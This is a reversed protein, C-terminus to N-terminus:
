GLKIKATILKLIEKAAKLIQEVKEKTFKIPPGFPYREEVYFPNLVLCNPLLLNFSKDHKLCLKLLLTLDHTKPYPSGKTLLYGKLAKEATQQSFFGIHYGFNSKEALIEAVKLDEKAKLLWDEPNKSDKAM